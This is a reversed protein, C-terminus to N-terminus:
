RQPLSALASEVEDKLSGRAEHAELNKGVVEQIQRMRAFTDDYLKALHALRQGAASHVAEAHAAAADTTQKADAQASAVLTNAQQTASSIRKDAEQRASAIIQDAQQHAGAILDDIEQQAALQNHTIEDAALQVLDAITRQGQPSAAAHGLATELQRGMDEMREIAERVWRDVDGKHYGRQVVAFNAGPNDQGASAQASPSALLITTAAHNQPATTM